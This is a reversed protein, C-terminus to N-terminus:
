GFMGSQLDKVFYACESLDDNIEINIKNLPAIDEKARIDCLMGIAAKGLGAGVAGAAKGLAQGAMRGFFGPQGQQGPILMQQTQSPLQGYTLGQAVEKFGGAGFDGYQAAKQQSKAFDILKDADTKEQSKKFYDLGGEIVNDLFGKSDGKEFKTKAKEDPKYYDFVKAGSKEFAEAETEKYDSPLSFGAGGSAFPNQDKARELSSTKTNFASGRTGRAM